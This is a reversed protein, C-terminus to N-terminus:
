WCELDGLAKALAKWTAKRPNAKAAAETMDVLAQADKMPLILIIEEPKDHPKGKRLLAAHRM